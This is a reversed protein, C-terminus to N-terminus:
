AEYDNESCDTAGDDPMGDEEANALPGMLEVELDVDRQPFKTVPRKLTSGFLIALTTKTAKKVLRKYVSAVVFNSSTGLKYGAKNYDTL